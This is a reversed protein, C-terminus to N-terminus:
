EVLVIGPAVLRGYLRKGTTTAVVPILDGLSGERRAKGPSILNLHTRRFHIMVQEGRHVVPVEELHHFQLLQGQPLSTSLQYGAPLSDATFYSQERQTVRIMKRQFHDLELLTGRKLPFRAAWGEVVAVCEVTINVKVPVGEVPTIELPIVYHGAATQPIFVRLPRLSAVPALKEVNPPLNIAVLEGSLHARSFGEMVHQRVVQELREQLSSGPLMGKAQAAGLLACLVATLFLITTIGAPIRRSLSM